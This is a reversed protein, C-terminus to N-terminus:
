ISHSAKSAQSHQYRLDAFQPLNHLTQLCSSLVSHSVLTSIADFMQEPIEGDWKMKKFIFDNSKSAFLGLHHLSQAKISSVVPFIDAPLLEAIVLTRLSAPGILDREGTGSAGFGAESHVAGRSIGGLLRFHELSPCVSLIYEAIVFQVRVNIRLDTIRDSIVFHLPAVLSALRLSHINPLLQTLLPTQSSHIAGGQPLRYHLYKLHYLKPAIELFTEWISMSQAGEFSLSQIQPFPCFNESFVWHGTHWRYRPKVSMFVNLPRMKARALNLEAHRESWTMELTTWLESRAIAVARWSRCVQSLRRAWLPKQLLDEPIAACMCDGIIQPTLTHVPVFASAITALKREAAVSIDRLKKALAPLAKASLELLAVDDQTSPVELLQRRLTISQNDFLTRPIDVGDVDLSIRAVISELTSLLSAKSGSSM